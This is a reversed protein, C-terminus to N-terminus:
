QKKLTEHAFYSVTSVQRILKELSLDVIM